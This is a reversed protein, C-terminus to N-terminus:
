DHVLIRVDRVNTGSPGTVIADGLPAFLGHSDFRALSAAADIGLARAREVTTGDAVAGAAPSNGDIGDTGASLVTVPEGTIRLACGLAFHQNRGGTGHHPPIKVRVEGGAVLAVPAGHERRLVRLRGILADIAQDCGLEATTHDAECRLGRATALAALGTTASREDLLCHWTSRAFPAAHPKPTEAVRGSRAERLMARISGPLHPELDHEVLIDLVDEWRSPDPMTPGSAVAEPRDHPVDSVYLTVQRAPAARLALRGGKVSSVHKRVANIAVIPAGCGVLAARLARLEALSVGPWLPRELIASGGGSVLFLVLDQAGAGGLMALVREAAALSGADPVPHGGPRVLLPALEGADPAPPACVGHVEVDRLLELLAAAMPRAAKGFSVVYVRGVHRLDVADGGPLQLVMGERRVARRIAAAPDLDPLLARFLEALEARRNM